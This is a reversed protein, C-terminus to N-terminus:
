LLQRKQDFDIDGLHDAYLYWVYTTDSNLMSLPRTNLLIKKNEREFFGDYVRLENRSTLFWTQENEEDGAHAIGQPEEDAYKESPQTKCSILENENFEYYQQSVVYDEQSEAELLSTFVYFVFFIKKFM